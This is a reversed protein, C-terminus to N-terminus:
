LAPDHPLTLLEKGRRVGIDVPAVGNKKILEKFHSIGWAPVGAVSLLLDGPMLKAKEAPLGMVDAWWSLPVGLLCGGADTNFVWRKHKTFPIEFTLKENGERDIKFM